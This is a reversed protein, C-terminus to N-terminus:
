QLHKIEDIRRLLAQYHEGQNGYWHELSYNSTVWVIRPNWEYYAGKVSVRMPYRDFLRLLLSISPRGDFDDLIVGKCNQRWGDFWGLTPDSLFCVSGGCLRKAEDYAGRTKGSGPPGWLYIVQTRWDRPVARLSVYREIGRNYRLFSGFHASAVDRLDEGADLMKQMQALDNRAGQGTGQLSGVERYDHEKKCYDAAQEDSGRAVEIHGRQLGLVRKVGGLRLRSRLVVFGQLHPTGGAGVEKGYVLYQVDNDSIGELHTLEDNTYNNLTWVYRKSAM